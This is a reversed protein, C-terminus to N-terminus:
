GLTLTEIIATADPAQRPRAAVWAAIVSENQHFTPVWSRPDATAGVERLADASVFVRYLLVGESALATVGEIADALHVNRFLIRTLPSDSLHAM